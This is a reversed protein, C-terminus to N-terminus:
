DLPVLRFWLKKTNLEVHHKGFAHRSIRAGLDEAEPPLALAPVQRFVFKGFRLRPLLVRRVSISRDGEQLVETAAAPDVVIGATQLISSPLLTPGQSGTYSFTVPVEDELVATVRIRGSQRYVALGDTLAAESLRALRRRTQARYDEAPGLVENGGRTEIATTIRSDQRLQGYQQSVEDMRRVITLLTVALASQAGALAVAAETAPSAEALVNLDGTMKRELAIMRDRYLTDDHQLQQRRGPGLSDGLLLRRNDERAKHLKELESAYAQYKRIIGRFKKNAAFFERELKPLAALQLRLGVEQRCIWYRGHPVLGADVLTQRASPPQAGAAPGTAQNAAFLLPRAAAATLTGVLVLLVARLFRTPRAM